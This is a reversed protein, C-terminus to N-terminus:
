FGTSLHAGLNFVAHTLAILVISGSRLWLVGLFLGLLIQTLFEPAYEIAISRFMNWDAQIVSQVFEGPVHMLGFAVSSLFVSTFRSGTRDLLATLLLVRFMLEELTAAFLTTPIVFLLRGPTLSAMSAAGTSWALWSWLAAATLGVVSAVILAMTTPRSVRAPWRMRGSMLFAAPVLTLALFYKASVLKPSLRDMRELIFFGVLMVVTTAVLMQVVPGVQDSRGTSWHSGAGVTTWRLLLFCAGFFALTLGAFVTLITLVHEEGVVGPSSVIVWWTLVAMALASLQSLVRSTM